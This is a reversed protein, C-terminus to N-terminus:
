VINKRHREIDQMYLQISSQFAPTMNTFLCGIRQQITTPSTKLQITNKVVFGVNAQNGEQLHLICESFTKELQFHDVLEEDPCLLAFGSISLDYLKFTKTTISAIANPNEDNFTIECYSKDHSFPVKVRYYQRRQKWYIENPIPMEFVFDSGIKSKKINKSSFSVKIGDMDTQFLVRESNLLQRNLLESPGWDLNLINHKFDIDIIATLFSAKNEGFHASIICHHKLIDTLYGAILKPNTVLFDSDKDM